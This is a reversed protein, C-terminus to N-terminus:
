HMVFQALGPWDRAFDKALATGIWLKGERPESTAVGLQDLAEQATADAVYCSGSAQRDRYFTIPLELEARTLPSLEERLRELAEPDFRHTSGDRATATPEDMALLESLRVGDSVIAKNAEAVEVNIWQELTDDDVPM